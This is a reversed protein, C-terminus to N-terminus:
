RGDAEGACLGAGVWGAQVIPTSLMRKTPRLLHAKTDLLRCQWPPPNHRPMSGFIVWINGPFKLSVVWTKGPWKLSSVWFINVNKIDTYLYLWIHQFDSSGTNKKFDKDVFFSLFHEFLSTNSCFFLEQPM